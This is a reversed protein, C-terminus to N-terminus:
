RRHLLPDSAASIPACTTTRSSPRTPRCSATGAGPGTPRQARVPRLNRHQRPLRPLGAHHRRRACSITRTSSISAPPASRTPATRLRQRFEGHLLVGQKTTIRPSFRSTTTPRWRGTTRFRSASATHDLQVIVIPMLFGTKRKVTPDPASFYPLYAVPMGFFELRADEFYIMKESQDHIIRAAKVQWLPPKKPDDKCPECATYVGNQFVTFNGGIRDARAAAMRTQDPTELRLSNVFGDRYDDTLDIIDGYTIKGDAETLRVNGEAHLRKTNQDYIVKDAEITSGNYYIQVNGVASVRNNTYDYHIETAQVLMPAKDRPPRRRSRRPPPRQPFDPHQASRRRACRACCGAVLTAAVLLILVCRRAVRQRWSSARVLPPSRAMVRGGPVVVRCIGDPRRGAGAALGSGDAHMLEAKSMDDTVKSLVIFCFARPVGSLVM